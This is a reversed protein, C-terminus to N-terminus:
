ATTMAKRFSDQLLLCDTFDLHGTCAASQQMTINQLGLFATPFPLSHTKRFLGEEGDRDDNSM